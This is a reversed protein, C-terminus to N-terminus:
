SLYSYGIAMLFQVRPGILGLSVTPLTRGCLLLHYLSFYGLLHLFMFSVLRRTTFHTSVATTTNATTDNAVRNM